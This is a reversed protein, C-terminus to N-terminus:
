NDGSRFLLQREVAYIPSLDLQPVVDLLFFVLDDEPLVAAPTVPQHAYEHPKWSRFTKRSEM